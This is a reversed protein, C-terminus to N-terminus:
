ACEFVKLASMYLASRATMKALACAACSEQITVDDAASSSAHTTASDLGAVTTSDLGHPRPLATLRVEISSLKETRHSRIDNDSGYEDVTDEFKATM